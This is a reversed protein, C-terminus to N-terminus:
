RAKTHAKTPSEKANAIAARAAAQEAMAQEVKTLFKAIVTRERLPEHEAMSFVADRWAGLWGPNLHDELNDICLINPALADIAAAAEPSPGEAIQEAAIASITKRRSAPLSSLASSITLIYRGVTKSEAPLSTLDAAYSKVGETSVLFPGREDTGSKAGSLEVRGEDILPRIKDMEAALRPSFDSVSCGLGTAFGIAAKLSLPSKGNLFFGVAAQTGIGYRAGFAMQSSVGAAALDAKKSNWIARLASAEKLHEETIKAKRNAATALANKTM